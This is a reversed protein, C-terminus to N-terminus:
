DGTIEKEHDSMDADTGALEDEFDITQGSIAPVHGCCGQRMCKECLSQQCDACYDMLAYSWAPITEQCRECQQM